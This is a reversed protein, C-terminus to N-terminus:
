VDAPVGNRFGHYTDLCDKMLEIDVSSSFFQSERRRRRGPAIQVPASFLPAMKRSLAGGDDFLDDYDVVACGAAGLIGRGRLAAHLLLWSLAAVSPLDQRADFRGSYKDLVRDVEAWSELTVGSDRLRLWLYNHVIGYAVSPLADRFETLFSPVVDLPNRIIFVARSGPHAQMIERFKLSDTIPKMLCGPASAEVLRAVEPVPRLRFDTFGAPDGENVVDCAISAALIDMLVNTGSRQHGFVFLAPPGLSRLSPAPGPPASLQQAPAQQKRFCFSLFDSAEDRQMLIPVCGLAAALHFLSSENHFLFHEDFIYDERLLPVQGIVLGGDQMRELFPRLVALPDRLHELMHWLATVSIPGADAPAFEGHRLFRLNDPCGFQRSVSEAAALDIDLGYATPFRGAAARALFGEGVGLEVFCGNGRMFKSFEGLTAEALQVRRRFEDTTYTRTYCDETAAAQAALDQQPDVVWIRGDAVVKCTRCRYMAHPHKPRAFVGAFDFGRTGCVPCQADNPQM